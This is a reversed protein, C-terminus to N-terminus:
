IANYGVNIMCPQMCPGPARVRQGLASDPPTSSVLTPTVQGRAGWGRVLRRLLAHTGSASTARLTSISSLCLLLLFAISMVVARFRRKVGGLTGLIRCSRPRGLAAPQCSCARSSTAPM